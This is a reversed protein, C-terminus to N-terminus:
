KVYFSKKIPQSLFSNQITHGKTEKDVWLKYAKNRAYPRVPAVHITKGNESITIRTPVTTGNANETVRITGNTLSDTDVRANFTITWVKYPDVETLASNWEKAPKTPLYEIPSIIKNSINVAYLSNHEADIIDNSEYSKWNSKTDSLIKIDEYGNLSPTNSSKIYHISTDNVTYQVFGISTIKYKNETVELITPKINSDVLAYIGPETALGISRGKSTHTPVTSAFLVGNVRILRVLVKEKTSRQEIEIPQAFRKTNDTALKVINSINVLWPQDTPQLVDEKSLIRVTLDSDTNMQATLASMHIMLDETLYSIGQSNAIFKEQPSLELANSISDKKLTINKRLSQKWFVSAKNEKEITVSYKTITDEDSSNKYSLKYTKEHPPESFDLISNNSEQVVNDVTVVPAKDGDSTTTFIPVIKSLDKDYPVTLHITKRVHDIVSKTDLDKITFSSIYTTITADPHNYIDVPESHASEIGNITQTVTYGIGAPVKKFTAKGDAILTTKEIILGHMDYLTVERNLARLTSDKFIKSVEITNSEDGRNSTPSKPAVTIVRKKESATKGRKATSNYLLTYIGPHSIVFEPYNSDIFIDKGEDGAANREVLIEVDIYDTVVAGPEKFILKSENREFYHKESDTLEDKWIVSLKEPGELTIHPRDIDVIEVLNSPNSLYGNVDQIVFYFGIEQEKFVVTTETSSIVVPNPKSPKNPVKISDKLLQDIEIKSLDGDVSRANCDTKCKYLTVNTLTNSNSSYIKKVGIEGLGNLNALSGIAVVAAPLVIIKRKITESKNGAEDTAYYEVTYEGPISTNIKDIGATNIIIKNSNTINDSVSVGYDEYPENLLLEVVPPGILQISPATDDKIEAKNSKRSEEGNVLQTVYYGDGVPVKIFEISDQAPSEVYISKIYDDKKDYLRIETKKLQYQQLNNLDVILKGYKDEGNKDTDCDSSCTKLTLTKPLVTVEREVTATKDHDNTVTYAINFKGPISTELDNPDKIVKETIDKNPPDIAKYGPEKFPNGSITEGGNPIPTLTIEPVGGNKITTSMDSLQPSRISNEEQFVTYTGASLGNFECVLSRDVECKGQPKSGLYLYVDNSIRINKVVISGQNNQPGSDNGLVEAIVQEPLIIVDNSNISSLDNMTFKARYIGAPLDAQSRYESTDLETVYEKHPTVSYNTLTVTAGATGNSASITRPQQSDLILKPANLKPSSIPSDAIDEDEAAVHVPFPTVSTMLLFVLILNLLKKVRLNNTEYNM